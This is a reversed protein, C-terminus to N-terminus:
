VLSSNLVTMILCNITVLSWFLPCNILLKVTFIDLFVIPFLKIAFFDILVIRLCYIINILCWWVILRVSLSMLRDFRSLIIISAMLVLSTTECLGYLLIDTLHRCYYRLPPTLECFYKRYENQTPTLIM